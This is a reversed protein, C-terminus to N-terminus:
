LQGVSASQVHHSLIIELLLGAQVAGFDKALVSGAAKKFLQRFPHCVAPESHADV